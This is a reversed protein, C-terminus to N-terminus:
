LRGIYEQLALALIIGTVVGFTLFFARM